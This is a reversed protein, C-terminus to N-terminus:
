CFSFIYKSVFMQFCHLSASIGEHPFTHYAQQFVAQLTSAVETVISSYRYCFTSLIKYRDNNFQDQTVYYHTSYPLAQNPKWQPNKRQRREALTPANLESGRYVFRM